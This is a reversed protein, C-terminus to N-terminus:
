HIDQRGDLHHSMRYALHLWIIKSYFLLFAGIFLFEIFPFAILFNIDVELLKLVIMAPITLVATIAFSIAMAGLYFGPEPYFDYDCHPCRKHIGFLGSNVGGIHCAPCRARLISAIKIQKKM